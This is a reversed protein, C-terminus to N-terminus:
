YTFCVEVELCFISFGNSLSDNRLILTISPKVTSRHFTFDSLLGLNIKGKIKMLFYIKLLIWFYSKVSHIFLLMLVSKEKYSYSKVSKFKCNCEANTKYCCMELILFLDEAM